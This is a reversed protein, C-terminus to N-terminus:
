NISFSNTAPVQLAIPADSLANGQQQAPQTYNTPPATIRTPQQGPMPLGFFPLLHIVLVLALVVITFMQLAYLTRYNNNNEM